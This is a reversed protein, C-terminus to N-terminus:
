SEVFTVKLVVYVSQSLSVFESVVFVSTIAGILRIRLSGVRGLEGGKLWVITIPTVRFNFGSFIGNNPFYSIMRNKKPTIKKTPM